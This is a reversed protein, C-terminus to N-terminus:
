KQDRILGVLGFCAILCSIQTLIGMRYLQRALREDAEDGRISLEIWLRALLALVVCFGAIAATQHDALHVTVGLALLLLGGNQLRQAFRPHTTNM